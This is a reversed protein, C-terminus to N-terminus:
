TTSDVSKGRESLGLVTDNELSLSVTSRSKGAFNDRSGVIGAVSIRSPFKGHARSPIIKKESLYIHVPLFPENEWRLFKYPVPHAGKAEETGDREKGNGNGDRSFGQCFFPISKFTTALRTGDIASLVGADDEGRICISELSATKECSCRRSTWTCRSGVVHLFSTSYRATSDSLEELTRYMLTTSSVCVCSCVSVPLIVVSLVQFVSLVVVCRVMHSMIGDINEKAQGGKISHKVDKSVHCGM